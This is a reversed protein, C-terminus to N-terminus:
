AGTGPTFDGARVMARGSLAQILKLGIKRGELDQTQVFGTRALHAAEAPRVAAAREVLIGPRDVQEAKEITEKESPL